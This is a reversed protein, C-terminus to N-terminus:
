KKLLTANAVAYEKCHSISLDIDEIDSLNSKLINVKPRGQKNNTIQQLDQQM